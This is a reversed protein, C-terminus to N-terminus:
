FGKREPTIIKELHVLKGSLTMGEITVKFSKTRDNNYFSFGIRPDISNIFVAPQWDLTIRNDPRYDDKVAKYDPAYFEKVVSYGNYSSTSGIGTSGSYDSGKKTYIALVGGPGNGAAGAFSNYVKVLAVQNAPIASIFSADTEVEDLYLTMPINGMSSLSATQRYFISYDLGDNFIQLGSVRTQLYDFINRYPMTEDTNVLDISKEANGSFMGSTYKDELQQLPTKKQVKLTIGELMQGNAKQIAEYDMQWKTQYSSVAFSNPLPAIAPLSFGRYLSDASMTVDIYQSKKGRVDSFFLRNKDFFVLSDLKFRGDSDTQILHTSRKKNVGSIMLMLQKDAFPKRVGQLTAKGTLTIYANDKFGNAPIKNLETWKFRRWGNTMMVLDLATKVSDDEASFYYAPDHVYGKLDSTLLLGSYINEQSMTSMLYDADSVSVSISGRVTDKLSIIFHNKGRASLNLTDAKLEVPQVYEKNNVFCLREALPMGDKNFFTVQLIGSNLHQTNIVGQMSAKPTNFQQRFVVHHQMQGVMYTATFAPDSVPQQLEFFYGEPHPIVMLAVGKNVAAPLNFTFGADAIVAQYKEGPLPTLEFMGMGDHWSSFEAVTEGKSNKITGHVDVPTGNGTTAKFAINNNVGEVMNGGEPFFNLQVAPETEAVPAKQRKGYIFVCRKYVFDPDQNMMTATYARITYMGTSLSDGLEIDGNAAGVFVPLTKRSIIASRENLLEVYLTTSITDPQWDSSLYAKFWATEGAVYNDRDLHLYIKEIPHSASWKELLNEPQQAAVFLVSVSQLFALIFFKKM